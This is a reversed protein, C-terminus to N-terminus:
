HDLLSMKLAIINQPSTIISSSNVFSDKLNGMCLFTAGIICLRVANLGDYNYNLANASFFPLPTAM